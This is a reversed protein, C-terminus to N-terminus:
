EKTWTTSGDVLKWTGVYDTSPFNNNNRGPGNGQFVNGGITTVTAPITVSILKNNRFSGSGLTTVGEPIIISTLDTYYFANDRIITVTNPITVSELKSLSFASEGIEQIGSPIEVDIKKAGGYSVLKAKDETGDSKRAYIFAKEDPLENNNFAGKEISTVLSSITIETLKNHEFAFGGISTVTEPITVSSIQCRSFAFEGIETVSAPIVVGEKKSGGYSILKATDEAGDSIRAYIFAKADEL